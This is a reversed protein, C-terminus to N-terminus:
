IIKKFFKCTRNLGLFIAVLGSVCLEVICIQKIGLIYKHKCSFIYYVTFTYYSCLNLLM